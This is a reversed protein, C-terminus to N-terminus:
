KDTFVHAMKRGNKPQKQVLFASLGGFFRLDEGGLSFACDVSRNTQALHPRTDHSKM